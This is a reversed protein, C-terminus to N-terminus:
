SSGKVRKHMSALGKYSHHKVLKVAAFDQGASSCEAAQPERGVARHGTATPEVAKAAPNLDCTIQQAHQAVVVYYPRLGLVM